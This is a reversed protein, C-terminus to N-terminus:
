KAMPMHVAMSIFEGQVDTYQHPTDPPVMIYDGKAVKRPTGGTISTGSMNPGNGPRADVLTGGTIFTCGGGIVYILEAQGKHLSPGTTGTRYELQVPYPGETVLIEVTNTGPGKHEAKAKAILAEVEAASAFLKPPREAQAAAPLAAAILLVASLLLYRTMANGKEPGKDPAAPQGAHARCPM